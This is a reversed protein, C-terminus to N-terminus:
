EEIKSFLSQFLNLTELQTKLHVNTLIRIHIMDMGEEDDYALKIKLQNNSNNLQHSYWIGKQDNTNKLENKIVDIEGDVIKCDTLQAVMLIIAELKSSWFWFGYEDSKEVEM